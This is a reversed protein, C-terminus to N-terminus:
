IETWGGDVVLEEGLIFSSQNSALFLVANAIEEPNGFRQMPIEEQLQRAFDQLQDQPVGLKGYIPTQIPGPSVANVRIGRGILEAGFTRSLSRVAAKSAAYISSGTMGMQNNVSTNLIISGGEGMIPAAKQVTFFAGKFNINFVEDVLTEDVADLPALKAIGANVFLVDLSGFVEKVQNVMAEIDSVQSVDARIALVNDGLQKAAEDLREQNQGSIAIRAGESKFLKASAFGIGTTGGTILATKGSLQAM